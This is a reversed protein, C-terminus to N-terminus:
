RSVVASASDNGFRLSAARPPRRREELIPATLALWSFVVLSPIWAVAFGLVFAESASM